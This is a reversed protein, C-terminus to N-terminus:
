DVGLNETNNISQGTKSGYLLCNKWIM